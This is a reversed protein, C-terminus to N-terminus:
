RSFGGLTRYTRCSQLRARICPQTNCAHIGAGGMFTKVLMRQNLRLEHLSLV